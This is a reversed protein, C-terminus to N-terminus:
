QLYVQGLNVRTGVDDPDIELVRRFAAIAEDSKNQGKAILGLLYPAQPATALARAAAQAEKQAADIQGGYYLAIALNMRAAGLSPEITLAERFAEAAADYAFQGLPAVGRNSARYAHELRDASSQPASPSQTGALLLCALLVGARTTM